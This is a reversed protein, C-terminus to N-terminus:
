PVLLFVNEMTKEKTQRKEWINEHSAREMKKRKLM